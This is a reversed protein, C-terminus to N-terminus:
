RRTLQNTRLFKASDVQVFNSDSLELQIGAVSSTESVRLSLKKNEENLSSLSTELKKIEYGTSAYSNVGLVYNMLLLVLAAMVAISMVYWKTHKRSCSYSVRRDQLLLASSFFSSIKLARQM